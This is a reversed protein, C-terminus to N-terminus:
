VEIHVERQLEMGIIARLNDITLNENIILQKNYNKGKIMLM